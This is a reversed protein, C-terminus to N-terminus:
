CKSGGFISPTQYDSSKGFNWKPSNRKLYVSSVEWWKRFSALLIGWLNPFNGYTLCANKVVERLRQAPVFTSPKMDLDKIGEVSEVSRWQPKQFSQTAVFQLLNQHFSMHRAKHANWFTAVEKMPLSKIVSVSGLHYNHYECENLVVSAIYAYIANVYWTVNINYKYKM